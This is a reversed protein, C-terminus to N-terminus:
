PHHDLTNKKQQIEEQMYLATFTFRAVPREFGKRYLVSYSLLQSIPMKNIRAHKCTSIQFM